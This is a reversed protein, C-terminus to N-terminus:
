RRGAEPCVHSTHGPKNCNFCVKVGGAGSGPNRQKAGRQVPRQGTHPAQAGPTKQEGRRPTESHNGTRVLERLLDEISSLKALVAQEFPAMSPHNSANAARGASPGNQALGTTAPVPPASPQASTHVAAGDPAQAPRWVTEATTAGSSDEVAEAPAHLAPPAKAKSPWPAKHAESARAKPTSGQAGEPRDAPLAAAKATAPPAPHSSPAPIVAPEQPAGRKGAGVGEAAAQATKGEGGSRPKKKKKAKKEQSSPPPPTEASGKQPKSVDAAKRKRSPNPSASAHPLAALLEAEAAEAAADMAAEKAADAEQILNAIPAKSSFLEEVDEDAQWEPVSDRPAQSAEDANPLGAGDHKNLSALAVAAPAAPAPTAHVADSDAHHDGTGGSPVSRPAAAGMPAPPRSATADRLAEVGDDSEDEDDALRPPDVAKPPTPAGVGMEARISAIQAFIGQM